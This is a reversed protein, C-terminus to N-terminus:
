PAGEETAHFADAEMYGAKLWAKLIAQDMLVNQCLWAHDLRDYCAKIDADLVWVPSVKKALIVFCQGIADATSRKPRFGYSNPDALSEAVPELALYHLAQQARDFMTPIGLPRLKGNSKAIYVRRLPQPAYGRRKLSRAAALKDEAISWIVRDVGPTRKGSNETVRKVALLKAAFSRTLLRQLKKVMGISGARVAQAIRLQLRYVQRRISSWNIDEWRMTPNPPAATISRMSETEQEGEDFRNEL